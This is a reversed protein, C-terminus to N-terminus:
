AGFLDCRAVLETRSAVGIKRFLRAIQNAVTRSSTGRLAAIQANTKGEGIARVISREASTLMPLGDPKRAHGIFALRCVGRELGDDVGIDVIVVRLDAPMPVASPRVRPDKALEPRRAGGLKKRASRLYSAVTSVSLGLAEAIDGNTRGEAVSTVVVRERDSLERSTSPPSISEIEQMARAVVLRFTMAEHLEVIAWVGGHTLASWM